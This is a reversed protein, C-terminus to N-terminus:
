KKQYFSGVDPNFILEHQDKSKRPSYEFDENLDLDVAPAGLSACGVFVVALILSILLILIKKM